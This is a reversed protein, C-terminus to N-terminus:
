LEAADLRGDNELADLIDVFGAWLSVLWYDSECISPTLADVRATLAEQADSDARASEPTMAEVDQRGQRLAADLRNELALVSNDTYNEFRVTRNDVLDEFEVVKTDIYHRHDQLGDDLREDMTGINDAIYKQADTAVVEFEAQMKAESEAVAEAVIMDVEPRSYGCALASLAVLVFLVLLIVCLVMLERM